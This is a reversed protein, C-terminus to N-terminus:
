FESSSVSCYICLMFILQTMLAFYFLAVEMWIWGQILNFETFQTGAEENSIVSTFFSRFFYIQFVVSVLLSVIDLAYKHMMYNLNRRSFSILDINYAIFDIVHKFILLQLTIKWYDCEFQTFMLLTVVFFSFAIMQFLAKMWFYIGRNMLMWILVGKKFSAQIVDDEQTPNGDKDDKSGYAQDFDTDGGGFVIGQDDDETTTTFHM